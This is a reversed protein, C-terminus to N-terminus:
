RKKKNIKKRGRKTEPGPATEPGGGNKDIKGNRLLGCFLEPIREFDEVKDFFYDAGAQLCRRGCEPYPDQGLMVVLPHCGSRRIKELVSLGSGDALRIGLIVGDPKIELISRIAGAADGANGAVEIEPRESLLAALRDRLPDSGEAIFIKV